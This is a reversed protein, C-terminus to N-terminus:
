WFSSKLFSFIKEYLQGEVSICSIGVMQIEPAIMAPPCEQVQPHRACLETILASQSM